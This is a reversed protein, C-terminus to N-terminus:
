VVSVEEVPVVYGLIVALVLTVLLVWFSITFVKKAIAEEEKIQSITEVKPRPIEPPIVAGLMTAFIFAVLLMPLWYTGEVTSGAPNLWLGGAWAAFFTVLFLGLLAPWPGRRKFGLM